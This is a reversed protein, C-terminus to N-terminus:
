LDELAVTVFHKLILCLEIEILNKSIKNSFLITQNKDCFIYKKTSLISMIGHTM